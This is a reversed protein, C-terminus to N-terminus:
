DWIIDPIVGWFLHMICCMNDSMIYFSLSSALQSTPSCLVSCWCSLSYSLLKTSPIWTPTERDYNTWCCCCYYYTTTAYVLFVSELKPPSGCVDPQSSPLIMALVVVPLSSNSISTILSGNPKCITRKGEEVALEDDHGDDDDTVHEVSNKYTEM